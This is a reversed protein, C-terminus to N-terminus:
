SSAEDLADRAFRYADRLDDANKDALWWSWHLSMKNIQKALRSTRAKGSTMGAVGVADDENAISLDSAAYGLRPAARRLAQDITAKVLAAPPPPATRACFAERQKSAGTSVARGLSRARLGAVMAGSALKSRAGRAARAARERIEKLTAM